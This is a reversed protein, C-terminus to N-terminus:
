GRGATEFHMKPTHYSNPASGKEREEETERDRKEEEIKKRDREEEIEGDKPHQLFTRSFSPTHCWERWGLVKELKMCKSM